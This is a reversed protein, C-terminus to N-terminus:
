IYIPLVGRYTLQDIIEDFKPIYDCPQVVYVCEFERGRVQEPYELHIFRNDMPTGRLDEIIFSHFSRRNNTIIGIQNM